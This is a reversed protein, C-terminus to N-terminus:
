FQLKTKLLVKSLNMAHYMALSKTIILLFLKEGVEM